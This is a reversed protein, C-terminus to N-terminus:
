ITTEYPIPTITEPLNGATSVTRAERPGVPQRKLHVHIGEEKAKRKKVANEKVRNIFEERSRSHSVHEIRVNVRKEMYRNGVRKYIIIGVASKTVNYVVGTKGHYIKFPMGKQVAGNVKIDVIDGVRYVRMYTSLPIVGKKKFDRSFAYRTGARLGHSHGM